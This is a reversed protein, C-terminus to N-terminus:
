GHGRFLVYGIHGSRVRGKPVERSLIWAIGRGLERETLPRQKTDKTGPASPAALEQEIQDPVAFVFRQAPGNGTAALAILSRLIAGLAPLSVVRDGEKVRVMRYAEKLALAKARAVSMGRPRGDPNGSQGKRFQRDKPPKGYGVEYGGAAPRKAAPKTM